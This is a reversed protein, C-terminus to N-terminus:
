VSPVLTFYRDLVAREGHVALQEAPIRKWLFLLLDSATGALEVDGPGDTLRVNDGDFEVTWDGPGDTERFRFREGAGAPANKLVRWYPAMDTFQQRIGHRALEADFAEPTGVAGEADWRHVAAEVTQIRLWFGVTHERSWTWVREDPATTAFINTLETAGEVFWDVMGTPVPGHNPATDPMPWSAAVEPLHLFEPDAPNPPVPLRGGAIRGVFRQVWGLHAVLDTVSWEPCSPVTPAAGTVQRIATEFAQVERRFHQLFDM